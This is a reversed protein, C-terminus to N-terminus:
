RALFRLTPHSKSFFLLTVHLFACLPARNPSFYYLLTCFPAFRFANQLFLLTVHLFACLLTCKPSFLATVPHFFLSSTEIDSLKFELHTFNQIPYSLFFWTVHLFACLFSCIPTYTVHLFACVLITLLYALTIM